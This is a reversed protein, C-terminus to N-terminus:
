SQHADASKVAYIERIQQPAKFWAVPISLYRYLLMRLISLASKIKAPLISKLRSQAPSIGSPDGKDARIGDASKEGSRVPSVHASEVPKLHKGMRYLSFGCSRLLDFLEAREDGNVDVDMLIRVNTTKLTHQAGKLVLLDAGEVDIKMLDINKISAERLVNDLTRTRVTVPESPSHFYALPSATHVLSGVGGGPYFTAQGEGDSLAYEHVEICQYGNATINRRLWQANGPDPEFALVRGRDRMLRAFLLSYYGENAGIDLITMGEKVLDSILRTKWYEYTGLAVDWYIPCSNLQRYMRSGQHNLLYHKDPLLFPLPVVFALRALLIKIGVTPPYARLSDGYFSGLFWGFALLGKFRRWRNKIATMM